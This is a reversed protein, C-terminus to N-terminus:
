IPSARTPGVTSLYYISIESTNNIFYGGELPHSRKIHNLITYKMWHDRDEASYQGLKYDRIVDSLKNLTYKSIKLEIPTIQDDFNVFMRVSRLIGDSVDVILEGKNKDM